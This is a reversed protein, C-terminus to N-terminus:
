LHPLTHSNLPDSSYRAKAHQECALFTFKGSCPIAVQAHTYATAIVTTTTHMSPVRKNSLYCSKSPIVVACPPVPTPFYLSKGAKHHATRLAFGCMDSFQPQPAPSSRLHPTLTFRQARARVYTMPATPVALSLCGRRQRKQHPCDGRRRGNAIESTSTHHIHQTPAVFSTYAAAGSARESTCVERTRSVASRLPRLCHVRVRAHELAASPSHALSCLTTRLSSYRVGV